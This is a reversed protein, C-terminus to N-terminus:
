ICVYTEYINRNNSLIVYAFNIISKVVLLVFRFILHVLWTTFVTGKSHSKRTFWEAYLVELHPAVTLHLVQWGIQTMWQDTQWEAGLLSINVFSRNILFGRLYSNKSNFGGRHWTDICHSKTEGQPLSVHDLLARSNWLNKSPCYNWQGNLDTLFFNHICRVQVCFRLNNWQRVHSSYFTYIRQM